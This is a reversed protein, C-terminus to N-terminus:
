PAPARGLASLETLYKQRRAEYASRRSGFPVYESVVWGQAALKAKTVDSLGMLFGFEIVGKEKPVRQVAWDIIEPDHTALCFSAGADLAMEVLGKLREQVKQFDDVDGPYAGKVLRPRIGRKLLARLDEPTRDFNAAVALTLSGEAACDLAAKLTFDVLPRGEMDIEFGVSRSAADRALTRLNEQCLKRDFLAGLDTLKVSISACLGNEEVARACSTYAEVSKAAQEEDRANEGLVDLNCRIGEANRKWCWRLASALDPLAWRDDSGTMAM